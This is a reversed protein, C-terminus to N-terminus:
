AAARVIIESSLVPLVYKWKRPRFGAAEIERMMDSLSVHFVRGRERAYLNRVTRRIWQVGSAYSYSVLLQGRTVRRFEGLITRRAEPPLRQFLRLCVIVDVSGDKFPLARADCQLVRLLQAPDYEEGAFALMERSGDAAVVHVPFTQLLPGLKGAGCPVDLLASGAPDIERLLQAIVAREGAAVVRSRLHKPMLGNTYEARYRRVYEGSRYRGLTERTRQEERDPNRPYNAAQMALSVRASVVATSRPPPQSWRAPRALRRNAHGFQSDGSEVRPPVGAM